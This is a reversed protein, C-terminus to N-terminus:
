LGPAAMDAWVIKGQGDPNRLVGWDLSLRQVIFIGHGGPRGPARGERPVPSGDGPDTVELRLLKPRRGVRLEDPGAAHLCANTVLESVVLLVDDAAAELDPNTTPLWGWDCLAQRTFGRARAVTGSVGLLKLRRVQQTVEAIHGPFEPGAGSPVSQAASM